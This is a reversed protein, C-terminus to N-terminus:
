KKNFLEVSEKIIKYTEEKNYANPIQVNKHELM